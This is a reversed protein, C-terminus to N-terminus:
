RGASDASHDTLSATRLLAWLVVPLLLEVGALAIRFPHPWGVAAVSVLRAIGGGGFTLLLGGFMRRRALLDLSCRILAAGFGLFLAAFFRDESDLAANVPMTGIIARPGCAIHAAAIICCIAGFLRVFLILERLM